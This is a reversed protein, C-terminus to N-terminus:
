GDGGPSLKANVTFHSSTRVRNTTYAGFSRRGSETLDYRHDVTASLTLNTGDLIRGLVVRITGGTEM